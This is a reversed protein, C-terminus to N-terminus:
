ALAAAQLRARSCLPLRALVEGVPSCSRPLGATTGSGTWGPRPAPRGPHHAPSSRWARPGASARSRARQQPAERARPLGQRPDRLTRAAHQPHRGVSSGRAVVVQHALRRAVERLGADRAALGPRLHRRAGRSRQGARRGRRAACGAVSRARRARARQLAARAAGFAGARLSFRRGLALLLLLLLGAVVAADARPPASRPAGGAQGGPAALRELRARAQRRVRAFSRMCAVQLEYSTSRKSTLWGRQASAGPWACVVPVAVHRLPM